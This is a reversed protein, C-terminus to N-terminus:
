FHPANLAMLCLLGSALGAIHHKQELAIYNYINSFDSKPTDGGDSLIWRCDSACNGMFRKSQQCVCIDLCEGVQARVQQQTGWM